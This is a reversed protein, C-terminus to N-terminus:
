LRCRWANRHICDGVIRGCKGQEWGM